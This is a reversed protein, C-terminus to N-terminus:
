EAQPERTAFGHSLLLAKGQMSLYGQRQLESLARSVTERSTGIMSALEQQTPRERIMIGEETSEGERRGLDILVRAVRSYVDLLALNGIVDDARRLRNCMVALVKLATAPNETLHRVFDERSLRWLHADDIAVVTASRPEGDLLSMEGFFDGAKFISLIVERNNEGQLTVKVRGQDIIFLADGPDSQGVIVQDRAFEMPQLCAGLRSVTDDDLAEFINVKRLLESHAVV